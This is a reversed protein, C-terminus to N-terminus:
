WACCKWHATSPPTPVMVSFRGSRLFGSVKSEYASSRSRNSRRRWAGSTFTTTTVPAPPLKQEPPSTCSIMPGSTRSFAGSNSSNVRMVPSRTFAIRIQGCGITAAISPMQAPAPAITAMAESRRKPVARLLVAKRNLRTPSAPQSMPAQAMSGRMTPWPRALSSSYVPRESPPSSPSRHPNKLRRQVGSASSSSACFSAPSSACPGVKALPIVLVMSCWSHAIVMSCAISASACAWAIQM